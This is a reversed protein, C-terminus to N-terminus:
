DNDPTLKVFDEWVLKEVGFGDTVINNAMAAGLRSVKIGRLKRWRGQFLPGIVPWIALATEVAWGYRRQPTLIMAPKFLSLRTFSLTALADELRGKSRVYSNRADPDATVSSLMAFHGVERKQCATAFAMPIDFDVAQFEEKSVKFPDGVGVTCIASDHGDVLDAYSGPNRLDVVHAVVKDQAPREIARRDLLTVQVVDPMAILRDLVASGVAGSAGMLVVKRDQGSM